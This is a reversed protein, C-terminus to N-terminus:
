VPKNPPFNSTLESSILLPVKLLANESVVGLTKVQAVTQVEVTIDPALDVLNWMICFKSKHVVVSCAKKPHINIHLM